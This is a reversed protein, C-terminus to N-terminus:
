RRACARCEKQCEVVGAARAGSHTMPATPRGPPSGRRTRYLELEVPFPELAREFIGLSYAITLGYNTVPVGASRCHLIRTLMERRNIMCAGCHIVMRYASLDEPFDHGQVHEFRLPGGVYDTLWRPIKVRGIDEEIPHHTCAEAVLVRDGPRLHDIALTGEVQTALDGKFRAFLISFGTLPVDRPTDEAVKRFAQSDTVVLAPPEKLMQLAHPLENEKAVVCLAHGDLLDRIAQVQPLILRGKPAEKDIPVVLVAMRGPPVLDRLIAPSNVFDAPAAQLLAERVALVGDGTTATTRVV